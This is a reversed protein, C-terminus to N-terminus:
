RSIKSSKQANGAPDDMLNDLHVGDDIEDPEDEEDKSIEIGQPLM